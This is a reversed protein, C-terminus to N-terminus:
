HRVLHYQIHSFGLSASIQGQFAVWQHRLLWLHVCPHPVAQVLHVLPEPYWKFFFCFENLICLLPNVEFRLKHWSSPSGAWRWCTCFGHKEMCLLLHKWSLEESRSQSCPLSSSYAHALLSWRLQEEHYLVAFDDEQSKPAKDYAEILVSNVKLNLVNLVRDLILTM